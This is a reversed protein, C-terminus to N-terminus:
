TQQGSAPLSRTCFRFGFQVVTQFGPRELCTRRPPPPPWVLVGTVWPARRHGGGGPPGWEARAARLKVVRRVRPRTTKLWLAFRGDALRGRVRGLSLPRASWAARRWRQPRGPLWLDTAGLPRPCPPVLLSTRPPSVSQMVGRHRGRTPCTRAFWPVRWLVRSPPRVRPSLNVVVCPRGGAGPPIPPVHCAPREVGRDGM